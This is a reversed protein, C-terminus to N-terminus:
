FKGIYAAKLNRLAIMSEPYSHLRINIKVHNELKSKENFPMVQMLVLGAVCHFTNFAKFQKQYHFLLLKM